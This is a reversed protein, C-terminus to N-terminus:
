GATPAAPRRKRPLFPLARRIKAPAFPKGARESRLGEIRTLAGTWAALWALAFAASAWHPGLLPQLLRRTLWLKLDPEGRAPVFELIGYAAGSLVYIALAHRGLATVAAFLRPARPTLVHLGGLLAVSTGASFLAFSSTWLHKNLPLVNGWFFGGAALVAGLVVLEGGGRGRRLREGALMGLAATAAAPLTTLIGEPDVAGLQHVGLLARDLWSPLACLPTLDGTPCGPAATWSLLAAYGALSAAAASGWLRPGGTFFLGACAVYCLAVRQLVGPWRLVQADGREFVNVLLGLLFLGAARLLVGRILAGRAEGAERRRALALPVSAGLAVLFAPFVLDAGTWGHWTSHRLVSFVEDSGPANVLIMGAVALGRLADLSTLRKGDHRKM